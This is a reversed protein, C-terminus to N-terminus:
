FRYGVYLQVLNNKLNINSTSPIFSPPTMGPSYSSPQKYLNNLSINYRAGILLGMFPHVEVGAGFGYDFRNYYDLLTNAEANGTNVQQSSDAKANLLYAFHMGFQIQFFRTINIDMLQQLMLYDLNVTGTNNGTAYNYGQRSFLLETTSGIIAKTPPAFVIGAHFGTEHSSNISSANTVNAFNLGAKLGIGIKPGTNSNSNHHTSDKTQALSLQSLILLIVILSYTRKM